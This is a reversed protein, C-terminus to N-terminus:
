TVLGRRVAGLVLEAASHIGLKDMIRSRHTEVTHLSLNLRNAIEKHARSDPPLLAM